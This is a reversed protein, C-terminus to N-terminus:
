TAAIGLGRARHTRLSSVGKRSACEEIETRPTGDLEYHGKGGLTEPREEKEMTPPHDYWWPDVVRAGRNRRKREAMKKARRHPIYWGLGAALLVGVSIALAM